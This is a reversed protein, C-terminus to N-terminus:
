IQVIHASQLNYLPIKDILKMYLANLAPGHDDYLRVPVRHYFRFHLRNMTGTIHLIPGKNDFLLKAQWSHNQLREILAMRNM